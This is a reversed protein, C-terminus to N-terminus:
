DRHVWLQTVRAAPHKTTANAPPEAEWHKSNLWRSFERWRQGEFRPWKKQADIAADIIPHLTEPLKEWIRFAEFKGGKGPYSKWRAEFAETYEFVKRSKRPESSTESCSDKDKHKHKHSHKDSFPTECRKVANGVTEDRKRFAQVRPTSYDKERYKSYNLILYGDETWEVRRGDSDKTRSRPDPAALIALSAEVRDVPLRSEHAVGPSNCEVLGSPGAMALLTIWVKCTEADLDWITSRLIGCDLKVFPM